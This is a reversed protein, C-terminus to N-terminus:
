DRCVDRILVGGERGEVLLTRGFGQRQLRSRGFAFGTGLPLGSGFLLGGFPLGTGLPLGSGFALAGFPLGSGFPFAWVLQTYANLAWQNVM